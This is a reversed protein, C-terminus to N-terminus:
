ATEDLEQTQNSVIDEEPRSVDRQEEDTPKKSEQQEKKGAAQLAELLNM